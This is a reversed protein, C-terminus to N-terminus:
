VELAGRRIVEETMVGVEAVEFGNDKPGWSNSYIDVYDQRYGLGKAKLADTLEKDLIRIGSCFSYLYFVNIREATLQLWQGCLVRRRGPCNLTYM